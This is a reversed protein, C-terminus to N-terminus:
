GQYEGVDSTDEGQDEFLVHEITGNRYLVEKKHGMRNLRDIDRKSIQENYVVESKHREATIVTSM